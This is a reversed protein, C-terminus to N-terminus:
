KPVAGGDKKGVPQGEMRKLQAKPDILVFSVNDYCPWSRMRKVKLCVAVVLHTQSVVLPRAPSEPSLCIANPHSGSDEEKDAM